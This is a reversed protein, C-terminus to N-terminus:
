QPQSRPKDAAIATLDHQHSPIQLDRLAAATTTTHALLDAHATRPRWRGAMLTILPIFALQGALCIWWWTQWQQPGHQSARLVDDLHTRLYTLDTASITQGTPVPRGSAVAKTITPHAAAITNVRTGDDVLTSPATVTLSFLVLVTTVVIKNVVSWVALGTATSAPNRREVTETHAAMWPAFALGNGIAALILSAAFTDYSTGPRTSAVAVLASAAASLLGGAVMLPKRVGLRDSLAGATLLALASVAWYWNALGNARAGSYGFTTILYVVFFGVQTYYFILYISIALSSALVDVRLVSRWSPRHLTAGDAARLEALERDRARVVIQNRLAPSLERLWLGAAVAVLLGALGCVRFQFRWDPHTELTLAAVGHVILAGVVPGLAWLAMATARHVQPSFDRVLAPLAVGSAGEVLGTASTLVLYSTASGAHPIALVTLLSTLALGSSVLAVRGFRDALGAFWSGAGGVAISIISVAVYYRFSMGYTAMIQSAVAGSVQAAWGFAVATAIALGLYGSQRAPSPYSVLYRRRRSLMAPRHATSEIPAPTRLETM